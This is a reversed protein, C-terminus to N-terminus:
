ICYIFVYLFWNPRPMQPGLRIETKDLRTETKPLKDFDAKYLNYSLETRVPEPEIPNTDPYIKLFVHIVRHVKPNLRLRNKPKSTGSKYRSQLWFM